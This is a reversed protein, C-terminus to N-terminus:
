LFTYSFSSGHKPKSSIDLSVGEEDIIKKVINLGIGFGGKDLNERYYREFIKEPNKIGVGFDEVIMIPSDHYDLKVRITSNEYSYKIANSLTNDIIRQLKTKNFEVKVGEAIEEEIWINRQHAVVKFYDVRDNLFQSMDLEEKPYEVSDEKILYDMDNYINSLTKSAAKIRTLYKNDGHKRAFLDINVNIISLPTNIEHMSDKMFSDLQQNVKEFPLAFQKFIFYSILFLMLLILLGIMLATKYIEYNANENELILYSAGFYRKEPLRQVYYRQDKHEYYGQMTIAPLKDLLTFIPLFHEDYLGAHIENYRPFDFYVQRESPQFNEMKQIIESARNKLALENKSENINVILMTYIVLPALLIFAIILSYIIGYRIAYGDSQELKLNIDWVVYM